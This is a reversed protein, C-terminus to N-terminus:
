HKILKDDKIDYDKCLRDFDFGYFHSSRKVDLPIIKIEKYLNNKNIYGVERGKQVFTYGNSIRCVDTYELPIVVEGNKNILGLKDYKDDKSVKLLGDKFYADRDQYYDTKLIENGNEDIFNIKGDTIAIAVGDSFDTSGMGGNGMASYKYDTIRKGDKKRIYACKDGFDEDEFNGICGLIYDGHEYYYEFRLDDSYPVTIQGNKNILADKGNKNLRAYGNAFNSMYDCDQPLFKGNKYLIGYINGKKATAVGQSFNGANDYEAEIVFKGKPNIYGCKDDKGKKICVCALGEEFSADNNPYEYFGPCAGYEVDNIRNGKKDILHLIYGYYGYDQEDKFFPGETTEDTIFEANTSPNKISHIIASLIFFLFVVIVIVLSAIIFKKNKLLKNFYELIVDIHSYIQPVKEGCFNCTDSFREIDEKCYPCKM